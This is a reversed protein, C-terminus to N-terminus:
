EMLEIEFPIDSVCDIQIIQAHQVGKMEPMSFNKIVVKPHEGDINALLLDTLVNVIEVSSNINWLKIFKNIEDEPFDNSEDNIFLGTIKIQYDDVNVLEKITLPQGYIATEVINKKGTISILAHPIEVGALIVPLYEITGLKTRKWLPAGTNSLQYDKTVSSYEKGLVNGYVSKIDFITAM